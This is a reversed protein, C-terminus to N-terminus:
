KEFAETLIAELEDDPNGGSNASGTVGNVNGETVDKARNRLFEEGQKKQRSIIQVAVSEATATPNAKASDILDEYGALTMGEIATIRAREAAAAETQIQALLEPEQNRLEDLTMHKKEEVEGPEGTENNEAAERQMLEKIDPLSAMAQAMGGCMATAAHTMATDKDEERFMIEDALGMEVAEEATFFRESNMMNKLKERSCKGGCKQIYANLISQDVTELMQKAQKMVGANGSAGTSARHIMMNAVPSVRVKTCGAAFVSAASAAISQIEGITERGADRLVTYMEFGNYVSGGGSNIEFILEEDAPCSKVANRVDEPCCLDTFGHKRYIRAYDDGIVTGGLRVRM